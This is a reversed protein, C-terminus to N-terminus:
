SYIRNIGSRVSFIAPFPSFFCTRGRTREVIGRCPRESQCQIYSPRRARGFDIEYLFTLRVSFLSVSGFLLERRCHWFFVQFLSVSGETRGEGYPEVSFAAPRVALDAICRETHMLLFFDDIQFFMTLKSFCQQNPFTDDIQRRVSSRRPRKRDPGLFVMSDARRELQSLAAGSSGSAKEFLFCFAGDFDVASM